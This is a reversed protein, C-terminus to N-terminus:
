FPLEHFRTKCDQRITSDDIRDMDLVASLIEQNDQNAERLIFGLPDIIVSHLMQLPSGANCAVVFCGTEAARSILHAGMIPVKWTDGGAAGFPQMVVQVGRELLYRYGEPFRLDYCIQLGVKIGGIEFITPYKGPAYYAVDGATLHVKDYYAEIEGKSSIAYARNYWASGAFTDAGIIAWIGLEACKQQIAEIAKEIKNWEDPKRNVGLQPSYGSVCAEPFVVVEIGQRACDSLTDTIKILNEDVDGGFALQAVGV